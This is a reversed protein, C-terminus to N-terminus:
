LTRGGKVAMTQMGELKEVLDFLAFDDPGWKPNELTEVLVASAPGQLGDTCAILDRVSWKKLVMGAAALARLKLNQIRKVHLPFGNTGGSAICAAYKLEIRQRIDGLSSQGALPHYFISSGLTTANM